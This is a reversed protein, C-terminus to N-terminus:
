AWARGAQGTPAELGMIRQLTPAVDYISLDDMPGIPLGDSRLSFVGFEDHNADDPGTDNEFTYLGDDLGLTGVSRWRLNGLYVILDPAIANVEPYIDEPRFARNGMSRGEHDQLAEIARVIRAITDEYEAPPILGCPERGVVNLFIRAYYGGDAWAITQSWNIEAEAIPTPGSPESKLALLGEQILWENICFGGMMPQAGHDSVVLVASDDPFTEFLMGLQTDLMRYYDRFITTHRSAPDHKPHAPDFTSWFGHHLRDPGMDVMAFFDWRRTKALQRAVTFRQETMDFIQQAVRSKDETRFDFVDFVYRGVTGRLEEALSVPQTWGRAGAPTLFDSVVTGSIGRPIPYTGPVGVLVSEGSAASVLDWM